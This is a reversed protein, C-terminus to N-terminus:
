TTILDIFKVINPHHFLKLIEIESIISNRLYTDREFSRIDLKKIAVKAQTKNEVGEYVKGYAGEGLCHRM